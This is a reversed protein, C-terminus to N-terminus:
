QVKIFKYFDSNTSEILQNFKLLADDGNLGLSTRLEPKMANFIETKKTPNSFLSKFANKVTTEDAKAANFVYKLEDFNSTNQIYRIFQTYSGNTGNFFGNWPNDTNPTWSKFEYKINEVLVDAKNDFSDDYKFEFESVKEFETANKKMYGIMHQIGDRNHSNSKINTLISKFGPKDSFKMIYEINNLVEDLPSINKRGGCVSCGLDSNSKLINKLETEWANGIGKRFNSNVKLLISLESLVKSDKAFKSSYNISTGVFQWARAM